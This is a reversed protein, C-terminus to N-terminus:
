LRTRVEYRKGDGRRRVAHLVSNTDVGALFLEDNGWKDANALIQDAFEKVVNNINIIVKMEEGGLCHLDEKGTGWCRMPHTGSFM